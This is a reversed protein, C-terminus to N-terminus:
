EFRAGCSPCSAAEEPVEAECAGCQVTVIEGTTDMAQAMPAAAAGVPEEQHYVEQFYDENTSGSFFDSAAPADVDSGELPYESASAEVPGPARTRRLTKARNERRRRLAVAAVLLLIAAVILLWAMPTQLFTVLSTLPDNGATTEPVAGPLFTGSQSGWNGTPDRAWATVTYLGPPFQQGYQWTGSTANFALTVNGVLGNPGVVVVSVATVSDDDTATVSITASGPAPIVQIAVTPPSTDPVVGPAFAAGWSDMCGFQGAWDGGPWLVYGHEPATGYLAVLRTLFALSTPSTACEGTGTHDPPPTGYNDQAGLELSLHPRGYKAEAKLIFAYADDAYAEACASGWASCSPTTVVYNGGADYYRKVYGGTNLFDDYFFYFHRDLVIRDLPDTVTPFDGDWNANSLAIWHTDGAGRAMDIWAQYSPALLTASPPWQGEADSVIPENLPEWLIKTYRDKYPVVLNDRWWTVWSDRLNQNQFSGPADPDPNTCANPLSGSVYLWDCYGHFDVVAWLDLAIAIDLSRSFWIPDWKWASDARAGQTIPSEFYLRVGNYGEAVLRRMTVEAVSATEGSFVTSATSGVPVSSESIRIGGWGRLYPPAAPGDSVTVSQTATTVNGGGDTATLTATYTGASAYAKTAPSGTATTADGFAWSFTYPTEGGTATATFTAASGTRPNAPSVTFSAQLPTPPPPASVTVSQTATTVNGGGDTVTLTATYTGAAAYAKTAPNGSGTTADGFAWAFAYPTEGGSATATFTAPNGAVPTAPTVTFTAQLPPPASVVVPQSAATVNGGGDTVTLTATYTGATAYAKTAPSGSGTTGDGFAWGFAYPTEGGSATATFTAAVGTLPSAPSVTFNAQLPQPPATGGITFLDTFPGSSAVFEAVLSTATVTYKYFGRTDDAIKVFYGSEPDSWSVAYCCQGFSGSIDLVLGSGRSYFNDAGDDVVCAPEYGDVLIAPCSLQKSRQVTHDHGELVLDVKRDLLLNFLDPGIECSKSGTTICNKHMGVVVWPISATRAGDIADRAFNYHATGVNYDWRGSGDVNYVLGPSILIFRALPSTQPYDFYYERGYTGTYPQPFTYPCYQVFYDINGGGDEGSDHNGAIVEVDNLSAKLTQCWNQESTAGYSMDGLALLFDSGSSALQAASADFNSGFDYDGAAAFVFGGAVPLPSPDKSSGLVPGSLGLLIVVALLTPAVRKM